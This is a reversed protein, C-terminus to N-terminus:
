EKVHLDSLAFETPTYLKWKVLLVYGSLQYLCKIMITFSSKCRCAKWVLKNSIFAIMVFLCLCGNLYINIGFSRKSHNAASLWFEPLGTLM